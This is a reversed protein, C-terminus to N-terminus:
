KFDLNATLETVRPSKWRGNSIDSNRDLRFPPNRNNFRFFSENLFFNSESFYSTFFTSSTTYSMLILPSFLGTFVYDNRIMIIGQFIKNQNKQDIIQVPPTTPQGHGMIVDMQMPDLPPFLPNELQTFEHYGVCARLSFCPIM